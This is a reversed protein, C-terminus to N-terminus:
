KVASFWGQVSYVKNMLELKQQEENYTASIRQVERQMFSKEKADQDTSFMQVCLILNDTLLSTCKLATRSCDNNQIGLFM